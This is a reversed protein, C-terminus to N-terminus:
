AAPWHAGRPIALSVLADLLVIGGLLMSFAVGLWFLFRRGAPRMPRGRWACVYLDLMPGLFYCLNASLVFAAVVLLIAYTPIRGAALFAFGFAMPAWPLLLMVNYLLRRREWWRVLERLAGPGARPSEVKPKRSESGDAKRPDFAPPRLDPGPIEDSM